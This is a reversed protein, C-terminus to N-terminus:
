LTISFKRVKKVKTDTWEIGTQPKLNRKLDESILHELYISVCGNFQQSRLAIAEKMRPYVRLGVFKDNSRKSM